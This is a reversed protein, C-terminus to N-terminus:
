DEVETIWTRCCSRCTSARSRAPSAGRDGAGSGSHGPLGRRKGPTLSDALGDVCQRLAEIIGGATLCADGALDAAFAARDIAGAVAQEVVGGTLFDRRRKIVKKGGKLVLEVVGRDESTPGFFWGVVDDLVGQRAAAPSEAEPYPYRPRLKKDLM